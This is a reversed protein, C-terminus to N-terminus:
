ENQLVTDVRDILMNTFLVAGDHNLHANDKFLESKMLQEHHYLDEVLFLNYKDITKVLNKYPELEGHEEKELRPTFVFM